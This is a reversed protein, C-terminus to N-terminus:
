RVRYSSLLRLRADLYRRVRPTMYKTEWDFRDVGLSADYAALSNVLLWGVFVGFEPHARIYAPDHREVADYVALGIVCFEALQESVSV